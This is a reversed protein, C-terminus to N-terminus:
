NKCSVVLMEAKVKLKIKKKQISISIQPIFVFADLLPWYLSMRFHFNIFFFVDLSKVSFEVRFYKGDRKMWWIYFFLKCGRTASEFQVWALGAGDNKRGFAIPLPIVRAAAASKQHKALSSIWRERAWPFVPFIPAAKARKNSRIDVWFTHTHTQAHAIAFTTCAWKSSSSSAPQNVPMM